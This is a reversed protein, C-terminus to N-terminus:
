PKQSAAQEPSPQETKKKNPSPGDGEKTWSLVHQRAWAWIDDGFAAGVLCTVFVVYPNPDPTTQSVIALGGYAALFVLVAASVGRSVIGFFDLTTAETTARVFRSVLAGLLGFGVLGTILALPMSESRLLWSSLDGAIGLTYGFDSRDPPDNIDPHRSCEQYALNVRRVANSAAFISGGAPGPPSVTSPSALPEPPAAVAAATEQSPLSPAEVATVNAISRVQLIGNWCRDLQDFLGTLASQYWRSIALFHDAQERSGVRNLNEITYAVIARQLLRDQEALAQLRLQHWSESLQEYDGAVFRGVSGGAKLSDPLSPVDKPFRHDFADPPTGSNSLRAKTLQGELQTDTLQQPKETTPKFLSVAVIACLCLYTAMVIILGLGINARVKGPIAKLGAILGRTGTPGEGGEMLGILQGFLWALLAWSTFFQVLAIIRVSYESFPQTLIARLSNAFQVASQFFCSPNKGLSLALCTYSSYGVDVIARPFNVFFLELLGYILYWVSLAGTRFLTVSIGLALLTALPPLGSFNVATLLLRLVRRFLWYLVFLFVLFILAATITYLAAVAGPSDFLSDFM